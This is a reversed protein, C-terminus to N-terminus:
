VISTTCRKYVSLYKRAMVDPSFRNLIDERIRTSNYKKEFVTNLGEVLDDVDFGKCIFGNDETILEETGSVPFVVAPVGCAMAELPAQSFAEQMSPMVFYDSSSLLRSLRNPDKIVGTTILRDDQLSSQNDGIALIRIDKNDIVDIANMLKELGKHMDDIRGAIFSLVIHNDGLGLEKRTEERYQRIFITGDVANNIVKHQKGQLFSHNGFNRQFYESLLVFFLQHCQSLMSKKLDYYKRELCNNNDFLDHYHSIGYFLGEDHLTWVIPKTVRQLFVQQDFFNDVWHLHIIDAWQVWPHSSIDLGTVPRTFLAGKEISMKILIDEEYLYIHALRLIKHFADHLFCRFCSYVGKVNNRRSKTCRVLLRSEVGVASLSESIRLACLGAGTTDGTSIHLVRM